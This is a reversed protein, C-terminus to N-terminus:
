KSLLLLQLKEILSREEAGTPQLNSIEFMLKPETDRKQAGLRKAVIGVLHEPNRCFEVYDLRIIRDAPLLALDSKLKKSLGAVQHAVQDVVSLHRIAEYEVPKVSWWNAPNKLEVHRARLISLGVNDLARDVVLFYSNPFIESLLRLRLIHKVNKNVFPLEGSLTQLCFITRRLTSLANPDAPRDDQYADIDFFRCWFAGAERPAVAGKVKGYRSSFDSIYDGLFFRQLLSTLCPAKPFRGVGNTFYALQLRHVLYQYVLTTGSRPLGLIFLQPATPSCDRHLLFREVLGVWNTLDLM